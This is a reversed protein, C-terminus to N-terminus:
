RSRILVDREVRAREVASQADVLWRQGDTTYGATPRLDPELAAFYANFAHMGLERAYKAFCSALAVPFCKDEAKEVIVLRAARPGRRERLQYESREEDEHLLLVEADALGRALLPGYRMRGGQRDVVIRPHEAGQTRWLHALAELTKEWVTLSKNETRAYSANLEGAPVLRVGGDLFELGKARMRKELQATLLELTAPEHEMPLARPLEAYWPHRLVVSPAPRLAGGFLLTRPDSVPRRSPELLALFALATAELRKRGKENRAFVIKSDAVCLKGRKGPLKAVFGALLRWPDEREDPISLAAYGVALPGLLPGVGAEDIGCLVARRASM